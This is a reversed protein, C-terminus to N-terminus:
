PVMAPGARPALAALIADRRFMFIRRLQRRVLPAGIMGLPGFPLRFRVEDEVLTGGTATPTFRHRHVWEAYPGRVQEDIFELPPNWASILTRWALPVGWLRIRYDILTGACMPIPAPTLIDFGLEPPTIRGLNEAATFFGFLEDRPVPIVQSTRLLWTRGVRTIDIHYQM